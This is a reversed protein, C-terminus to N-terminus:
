VVLGNPSSTESRGTTSVRRGLYHRSNGGDHDDQRKDPTPRLGDRVHDGLAVEDVVRVARAAPLDVRHARVARTQALGGASLGALILERCGSAEM